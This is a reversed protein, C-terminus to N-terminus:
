PGFVRLWAVTGPSFWWRVRRALVSLPSGGVIGSPAPTWLTGTFNIWVIERWHDIDGFGVDFHDGLSFWGMRLLHDPNDPEIASVRGGLTTVDVSVFQVDEGGVLDATGSDSVSGDFYLTV